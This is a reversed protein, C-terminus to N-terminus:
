KPPLPAAPSDGSVAKPIAMSEEASTNMPPEVLLLGAVKGSAGAAGKWPVNFPVASAKTALIPVNSKVSVAEKGAGSGTIGPALAAKVTVIVGTPPNVPVTERAHVPAGAFEVQVRVDLENVAISPRVGWVVLTANCVVAIIM